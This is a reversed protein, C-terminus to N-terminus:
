QHSRHETANVHLTLVFTLLVFRSSDPKLTEAPQQRKNGRSYLHHFRGMRDVVLSRKLYEEHYLMRVSSSAHSVHQPEPTSDAALQPRAPNCDTRKYPHDRSIRLGEGM